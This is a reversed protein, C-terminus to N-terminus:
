RFSPISCTDPLFVISSQLGKAGHVTMVRVENNGRDLDRKLETEDAEIWELFGTFSPTHEREYRLCLNLFEDISDAADPGLRLLFKTRGGFPGLITSFFEFPQSSEVMILLKKLYDYAFQFEKKQFCTKKLNEWLSGKREHSLKLLDMDNLGILPGKLIIALNLDDEPLLIFRGLALLDMIAIQQLLIIRDSGSVPIGLKKLQRIMEEVFQGRTRVLIMIDGPQITRSRSELKEGADIWTKITISISEALKVM